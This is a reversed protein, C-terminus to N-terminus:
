ALKEALYRRLEPAVVEGSATHDDIDIWVVQGSEELTLVGDENPSAIVLRPPGQVDLRYADRTGLIEVHGARIGNAVALLERYASPLEFSETSALGALEEPSAPKEAQLSGRVRRILTPDDLWDGIVAAIREQEAEAEAATPFRLWPGKARIDDLNAPIGDWHKPWPARDATEGLFGIIGAEHIQIKLELDRRGLTQVPIWDSTWGATPVGLISLPDITAIRLEYAGDEKRLRRVYTAERLQRVAQDAM